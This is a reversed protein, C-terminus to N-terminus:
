SVDCRGSHSLRVHSGDQTAESHATNRENAVSRIRGADEHLAERYLAFDAGAQFEPLRVAKTPEGWKGTGKPRGAGERKGGRSM